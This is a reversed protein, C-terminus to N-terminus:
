SQIVSLSSPVFLAEKWTSVAACAVSVLKGGFDVFWACLELLDLTESYGGQSCRFVFIQVRLEVGKVALRAGPLPEGATQLLLGAPQSCSGAEGSQSGRGGAAQLRSFPVDGM